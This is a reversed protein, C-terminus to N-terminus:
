LTKAVLCLADGRYRSKAYQCLEASEFLAIVCSGAGTMTVGYPAFSEAAEYAKEIQSNLSKAAPYLANYLHKGLSEIDGAVYSEIARTTAGTREERKAEDFIEFCRKTSVSEQPCLLLLHLPKDGGLFYCKNGRGQM